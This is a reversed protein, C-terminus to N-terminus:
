TSTSLPKRQTMAGPKPSINEDFAMLFPSSGAMTESASASASSALAEMTAPAGNRTLWFDHGAQAKSYGRAYAERLLTKNAKQFRACDSRMEARTDAVIDSPGYNDDLPGGGSEDSEDNSSWLAATVYADFFSEGSDHSRGYRRRLGRKSRKM